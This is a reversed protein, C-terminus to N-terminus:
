AFNKPSPKTLYLLIICYEECDLSYSVRWSLRHMLFTAMMGPVHM